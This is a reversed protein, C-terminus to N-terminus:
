ALPTVEAPAPRVGPSCLRCLLCDLPTRPRLLRHIMTRRSGAPSHSPELPLWSLRWLLALALLLFFVLLILFVHFTM